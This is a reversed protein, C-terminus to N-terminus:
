AEFSQKFAAIAKKLDDLESSCAALLEFAQDIEKNEKAAQKKEHNRFSDDLSHDYEEWAVYFPARGGVNSIEFFVQGKQASKSQLALLYSRAQNSSWINFNFLVLLFIINYVFTKM